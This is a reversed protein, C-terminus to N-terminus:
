RLLIVWLFIAVPDAIWYSVIIDHVRGPCTVRNDLMSTHKIQKSTCVRFAPGIIHIQEIRNGLLPMLNEFRSSIVLNLLKCIIPRDM